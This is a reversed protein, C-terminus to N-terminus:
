HPANPDPGRTGNAGANQVDRLSDRGYIAVDSLGEGADKRPVNSGTVQYMDRYKQRPSPGDSCAAVTLALAALWAIKM